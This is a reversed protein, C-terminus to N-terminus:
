EAKLLKGSTLTAVSTLGVDHVLQAQAINFKLIADAKNSLAQIYVQQASIVDLNTGVGNALRVRSLRLQESSSVVQKTAVDIQKEAILSNLYATRVQQLVLMFQQNAQLLAQRANARASLVNSWTPVDLGIHNWDLQFGLAYSPRVQRSTLTPQSLVAAAGTVPQSTPLGSVATGAPPASTVPVVQLRSPNVSYSDGLTAGNGTANGFFQFTPYLPAAAVQIQRLAALRFEEYQKLEPRYKISMKMLDNITLEPDILRVKKVEKEVPLLNVAQNLNLASALRIASARFAVEQTLLNQEDSALQSESQLIAFRTGTGAHELKENLDVQARSTDVARVQIELLAQNRVLLYYQTAVDLLTDSITARVAAKAARFNHLNALAGFLVQGGRFGYFRFGGLIFVNPTHFTIPIVGSVLSSGQLIQQRYSMLADPLFNGFAGVALWKQSTLGERSIRIPLNNDLSFTLAERLTIPQNFSAELKIPPLNSSVPLLQQASPLNLPITETAPQASVDRFDSQLTPAKGPNLPDFPRENLQTVSGGGQDAQASAPSSLNLGALLPFLLAGGSLARAM